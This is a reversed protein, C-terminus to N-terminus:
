EAVEAAPLGAYDAAVHHTEIRPEEAPVIQANWGQWDPASNEPTIQGNWGDWETNRPQERLERLRESMSKRREVDKRIRV